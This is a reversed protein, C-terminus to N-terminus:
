TKTFKFFNVGFSERRWNGLRTATFFWRTGPPEDMILDIPVMAPRTWSFTYIGRANNFDRALLGSAFPHWHHVRRRRPKERKREGEREGGVGYSLNTSHSSLKQGKGSKWLVCLPHERMNAPRSFGRFKNM